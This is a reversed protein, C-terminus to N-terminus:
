KIFTAKMGDKSVKANSQRTHFFGELEPEKKMLLRAYYPTYNNNLKFDDDTTELARHWRLVNFLGWISYRERGTRRMKLALDRLQAYVLPNAEHFDQFKEALPDSPVPPPPQGFGLMDLLGEAM